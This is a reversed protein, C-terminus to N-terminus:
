ARRFYRASERERERERERGREREREGERERERERELIYLIYIIDQVLNLMWNILVREFKLMHLKIYQSPSFCSFGPM